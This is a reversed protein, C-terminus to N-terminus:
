VINATIIACATTRGGDGASVQMNIGNAAPYTTAIPAQLGWVYETNAVVPCRAGGELFDCANEYGAPIDIPFPLGLFTASIGVMLRAFQERPTFNVRATFTQGRRLTCTEGSCYDSEVWNPTPLGGACPRFNVRAGEAAFVFALLVIFKFM